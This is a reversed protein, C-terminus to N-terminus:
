CNRWEGGMERDCFRIELYRCNDAAYFFAPAQIVENQQFDVFVKRRRESCCIELLRGFTTADMPMRKFFNKLKIWRIEPLRRVLRLVSPWTFEGYAGYTLALERLQPLEIADIDTDTIREVGDITLTRLQGFRRIEQMFDADTGTLGVSLRRLTHVAGLHRLLPGIQPPMDKLVLTEIANLHRLQTASNGMEVCRADHLELTRLAHFRCLGDILSGDICCSEIVIRQMTAVAGLHMLWKRNVPPECEALHLEQLINLNRLRLRMEDDDIDMLQIQSLHLRQLPLRRLIQLFQLDVVTNKISLCSLTSWTDAAIDSLRMTHDADFHLTLKNLRHVNHFWKFADHPTYRIYILELTTLRDFQNLAAITAATLSVNCIRLQELTTAAATTLATIFENAGRMEGDLQVQRLRSLRWTTHSPQVTTSPSLDARSVQRLATLLANTASRVKRFLQRRWPITSQDDDHPPSPPSPGHGNESIAFLSGRLHLEQLQDLQAVVMLDFGIPIGMDLKRVHRHRLLFREYCRCGIACTDAAAIGHGLQHDVVTLSTLRPLTTAQLMACSIRGDVTLEECQTCRALIRELRGCNVAHLVILRNLLARAALAMRRTWKVHVIRLSRLQGGRCQRLVANFLTANGLVQYGINCTAASTYMVWLQYDFNIEHLLGGFHRLHQRVVIDNVSKRKQQIASSEGNNTFPLKGIVSRIRDSSSNNNDSSHLTHRRCISLRRITQSQVFALRALCQLRNSTGAVACLDVLPLHQLISLLCDDNMDLLNVSEVSKRRNCLM